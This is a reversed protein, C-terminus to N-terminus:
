CRRKPDARSSASKTSSNDGTSVFILSRDQSEESASSSAPNRTEEYLTASSPPQGLRHLPRPLQALERESTFVDTATRRWVPRRDWKPVTEIDQRPSDRIRAQVAGVTDDV